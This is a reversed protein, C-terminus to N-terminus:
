KAWGLKDVLVKWERFHQEIRAMSLGRGSTARKGIKKLRQERRSRSYVPCAFFSAFDGPQGEESM